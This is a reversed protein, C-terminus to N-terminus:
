ERGRARDGRGDAFGLLGLWIDTMHRAQLLRRNIQEDFWESCIRPAQSADRCAALRTGLEPGAQMSATMFETWERNMDVLGALLKRTASVTAEGVFGTTEDQLNAQNPSARDEAASRRM